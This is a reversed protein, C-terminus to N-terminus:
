GCLLPLFLGIFGPPSIACRGQHQLSEPKRRQPADRWDCFVNNTKSDPHKIQVVFAMLGPSQCGPAHGVRRRYGHIWPLSERPVRSTRTRERLEGKPLLGRRSPAVRCSASFIKRTSLVPCPSLGSFGNYWFLSPSTIQLYRISIAFNDQGRIASEHAIIMMVFKQPKSCAGWWVDERVPKILPEEERGDLCLASHWDSCWITQPLDLGFQCQFPKIRHHNIGVM